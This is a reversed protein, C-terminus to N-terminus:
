LIVDLYIGRLINSLIQKLNYYTKSDKLRGFRLVLVSLLTGTIQEEVTITSATSVPSDLSDQGLPLGHIADTEADEGECDMQTGETEQAVDYQDNQQGSVTMDSALSFDNDATDEETHMFINYNDLKTAERRGIEKIKRKALAAASRPTKPM